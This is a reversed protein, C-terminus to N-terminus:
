RVSAIGASALLMAIERQKASPNKVRTILSSNLGQLVSIAEGDKKVLWETRGFHNPCHSAKCGMDLLLNLWGPQSDNPKMRVELIVVKPTM